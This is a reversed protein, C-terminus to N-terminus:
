RHYFFLFDLFEHQLIGFFTYFKGLIYASYPTRRYNLFFPRKSVERGSPPLDEYGEKRIQPGNRFRFQGEKKDLIEGSM